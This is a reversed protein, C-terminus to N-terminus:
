CASKLFLVFLMFVNIVFYFLYSLNETGEKIQKTGLVSISTQHVQSDIGSGVM